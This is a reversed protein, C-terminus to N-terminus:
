DDNKPKESVHGLSNANPVSLRLQNYNIEKGNTGVGVVFM